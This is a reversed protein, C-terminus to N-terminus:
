FPKAVKRSESSGTEPDKYEKWSVPYMANGAESTAMIVGLENRATSLYYNSQDGLSIVVARVIDGPRFSEFIKVKDKETARVDQVRILGQWEGELVTEGVVLIAVTAQRPTIRTVRCLVTSNVEPIIEAKDGTVTAREISVTSLPVLAAPTIKTARKQPYSPKPPAVTKIPGLISAYLNSSHIHTGPGPLYESSSGLLQGPVAVLPIQSMAM